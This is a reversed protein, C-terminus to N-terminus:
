GTYGNSDVFATDAGLDLLRTLEEPHGLMAADILAEGLKEDTNKQARNKKARELKEKSESRVRMGEFRIGRRQIRWSKGEEKTTGENTTTATTTTTTTIPAPQPTPPLPTLPAQPIDLNVVDKARKASFSRKLRIQKPSSRAAAEPPNAQVPLPQPIPPTSPRENWPAPEDASPSNPNPETKGNQHTRPPPPPPPKRPAPPSASYDIKEASLVPELQNDKNRRFSLFGSSTKSAKAPREPKSVTGARWNWSSKASFSGRRTTATKKPDM